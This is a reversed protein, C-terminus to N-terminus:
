SRGMAKRLSSKWKPLMMYRLKYLIFKGALVLRIKKVLYPAKKYDYQKVSEVFYKNKRIQELSNEGSEGIKIDRGSLIRQVALDASHIYFFWVFQEVLMYLQVNSEKLRELCKTNKFFFDKGKRMTLSGATKHQRYKARFDEVIGGKVDALYLLNFLVDEGFELSPDFRITGKKLNGRKYVKNFVVFSHGRYAFDENIYTIGDGQLLQRQIGGGSFEHREGNLLLTTRNFCIYEPDYEIIDEALYRICDIDLEDDSDCFMVYDGIAYEIGKNRAASAGSNEQEVKVVWSYRSAYESIIESSADKSGDNVCIVECHLKNDCHEARECASIISDICRHLTKESNYIPIIVSISFVNNM